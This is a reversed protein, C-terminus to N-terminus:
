AWMRFWFDHHERTFGHNKYYLMKFIKGRKKLNMFGQLNKRANEPLDKVQLLQHAAMYLRNHFEKKNRRMKGSMFESMNRDVRGKTSEMEEVGCENEGHVRYCLLPLEMYRINGFIAALEMIWSDHMEIEEICTYELAKDRLPRNILMSCGAAPNDIMIHQYSLRRPDRGMYDHFNSAIMNMAGDCVVMEHYVLFPTTIEYSSPTLDRSRAKEQENLFIEESELEFMEQLSASIKNPLWVDDQDAFFYYDAEVHELLSLFNAKASGTAPYDLIQFKGPARMVYDLLIKRTGDTSGDDHVYCVFDQYSQTELSRLLESIYKEGNYTALLVAVKEM